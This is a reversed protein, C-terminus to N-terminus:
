LAPKTLYWSMDFNLIQRASVISYAQLAGVQGAEGFGYSSSILRDWRDNQHVRRRVIAQQKQSKCGLLMIKQVFRSNLVVFRLSVM